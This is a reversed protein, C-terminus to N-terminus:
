FFDKRGEGKGKVEGKILYKTLGKKYNLAYGDMASQNFPPFNLNSQIDKALTYGLADSTSIKKASLTRGNADIIKIAENLHKEAKALNNNQAYLMGLNSNAEFNELNKQLIKEYIKIAGSHNNNKILSLAFNLEKKIDFVEENM